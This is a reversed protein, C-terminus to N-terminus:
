GRCALESGILLRLEFAEQERVPTLAEAEFVEVGAFGHGAEAFMGFGARQQAGEFVPEVAAGAAHLDIDFRHERRVPLEVVGRRDFFILCSGRTMKRSWKAGSGIFRAMSNRCAAVEM